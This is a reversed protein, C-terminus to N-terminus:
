ERGIGSLIWRIMGLYYRFLSSSQLAKDLLYTVSVIHEVLFNIVSSCSFFLLNLELELKTFESTQSHIALFRNIVMNRRNRGLIVMPGVVAANPRSARFKLFDESEFDSLVYVTDGGCDDARSAKRVTCGYKEQFYLLWWLECYSMYECNPINFSHFACYQSDRWRYSM